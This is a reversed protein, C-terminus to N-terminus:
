GVGLRADLEIGLVARVVGDDVNSLALITGTDLGVVALLERHGTGGDVAGAEAGAELGGGVNVLEGDVGGGGAGAELLRDVDGTGGNVGRCRAGGVLLLHVNDFLGNVSGTVSRAAL